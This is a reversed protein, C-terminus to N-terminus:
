KGHDHEVPQDTEVLVLRPDGFIVTDWCFGDGGDTAALTLFHSQDDLEVAIKLEQQVTVRQRCFRPQGDVFVWVDCWKSPEVVLPEPQPPNGATALFRLVRYEPNARRIAELDFTIGKNAHMGLVSHWSASYDIGRLVARVSGQNKGNVSFHPIVGGAWVCGSSRNDTSSFGNFTHGASDLQVAGRGGCLVSVGDVFPLEDVRHYRGDGLFMLANEGLQATSTKGTTPDIGRGSATGFGNGGAVVDVLNLIKVFRKPINRVFGLAKAATQAQAGVYHTAVGQPTVRASEGERLQIERPVGTASTASEHTRVVVRGQFVRLHSHQDETVEVGFETGLDTVTATPTRIVFPNPILSQLNSTKTDLKGTLKGVAL